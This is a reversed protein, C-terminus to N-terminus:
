KIYAEGFPNKAEIDSAFQRQQILGPLTKIVSLGNSYNKEKTTNFGHVTIFSGPSFDTKRVTFTITGANELVWFRRKRLFNSNGDFWISGIGNSLTSM